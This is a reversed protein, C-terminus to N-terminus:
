KKSKRKRSGRKKRLGLGKKGRVKIIQSKTPAVGKPLIFEGKHVLAPGTKKVRGGKKFPLMEGAYRGLRSGISSGRDEAKQGLGQFDLLKGVKGGLFKGALTGLKQGLVGMYILVCVKNIVLLTCNVEM